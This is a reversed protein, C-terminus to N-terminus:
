ARRRRLKKAHEELYDAYARELGDDVQNLIASKVADPQANFWALVDGIVNRKIMHRRDCWAAFGDYPEAPISINVVGDNKGANSVRQMTGPCAVAHLSCIANM